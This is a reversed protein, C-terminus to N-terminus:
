PRTAPSGFARLQYKRIFDANQQELPSLWSESFGSNPSYWGTGVFHARIEVNSFPRGHRAYIENRALTLQWNSWGTLDGNTLRRDNSQPLLEGSTPPSPPRVTTGGGPGTAPKGFTREQYERIFVANRREVESLLAESYSPNQSYWGTDRFYSAINPNSFGRGHRAYIENRALTLEWNSLGSLDAATLARDDSPPLLGADVPDYPEDYDMEAPPETRLDVIGGDAVEASGAVEPVEEAAGGKGSPAADSAVSQAEEPANVDARPSVSTTETSPPSEEERSLLSSLNSCGAGALMIVGAVLLFVHPRM